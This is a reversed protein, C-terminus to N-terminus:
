TVERTDQQVLAVGSLQRRLLLHDSKTHAIHTTTHTVTIPSNKVLVLDLNGLTGTEIEAHFDLPNEARASHDVLEKCAVSHWYDFRDRPHLQDTSFVREVLDKGERQSQRAIGGVSGFRWCCPTYLQDGYSAFEKSMELPLRRSM